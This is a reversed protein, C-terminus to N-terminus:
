APPERSELRTAARTAYESAAMGAFFASAENLQEFKFLLTYVAVGAVIERLITLPHRRIWAWATPGTPVDELRVLVNLLHVTQGLWLMGFTGVIYPPTIAAPQPAGFAIPMFLGTLVAFAFM